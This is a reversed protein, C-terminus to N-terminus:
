VETKGLRWYGMFAVTKRDVRHERVLLRRLTRVAGAEGALWAYFGGDSGEATDWLVDESETGQPDDSDGPQDDAAEAVYGPHEALFSRLATVLPAGHEQGERPLWTVTVDAETQLDLVDAATPIECFVQATVGAPLRECIAAIAPVATEDGALLIRSAGGPRFDIGGEHHVSRGDPGAVFLEAGPEAQSLWRGSVGADGHRVFDIDLLRASRNVDRVTYTRYPPRTEDPMERWRTFWTGEEPDIPDQPGLDPIVGGENPFIVKIRQDRRGEGFHDFDDSALRVRVFNPSLPIMEVLTAAYLRCGPRDTQQIEIQPSSVQPSM